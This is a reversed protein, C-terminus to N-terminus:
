FDKNLQHQVSVGKTRCEKIASCLENRIFGGYKDQAVQCNSSYMSRKCGLDDGQKSVSLDNALYVYTWKRHESKEKLLKNIEDKRYVSSSNEQGDTVIVLLVNEEYRFRDVTDGIADMLATSGGPAYSIHTLPEVHKLDINVLERKIDTNFKVLTFRCPRDVTKQEAILDNIASIMDDRISGMSGSEDLVLVIKYDDSHEVTPGNRQAKPQSTHTSYLPSRMNNLWPAPSQTKPDYPLASMIIDQKLTKLVKLRFRM